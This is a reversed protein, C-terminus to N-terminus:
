GASSQRIRWFKLERLVQRLRRHSYATLWLLAAAAQLGAFVFGEVAIGGCSMVCFLILKIFRQDEAMKRGFDRYALYKIWRAIVLSLLLSTGVLNVAFFFAYGLTRFLQLVIYFFSRTQTDIRNYVWYAARSSAIFALWSGLMGFFQTSPEDTVSAINLAEANFEVLLWVAPLAFIISAAWAREPKVRTAYLTAQSWLRPSQEHQVSLTDNEVYGLEYIAWFSLHLLAISISGMIPDPMLWAFALCLLVVDELMVGYVMYNEGRRKGRQSYMFPVYADAFAPRFEAMPWKVLVPTQCAALLDRDTENDTIVLSTALFDPGERQEIWARKGINRIRFGSWFAGVAVLRANPAIERLLPKVLADIGLTAVHLRVPGAEALLAILEDNKWNRALEPAQKRWLILGWPMLVSCVLVRIWDRYANQKDGGAIFKWPRLVDLVLLILYALFSPKLSSLYEETTNRLWLTEDFDVVVNLQNSGAWLASRIKAKASEIKGPESSAKASATNM